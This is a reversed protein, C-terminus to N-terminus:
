NPFWYAFWSPMWRLYDQVFERSISTGTWLPKFMFFLVITIVALAIAVITGIKINKRTLHRVIYVTFLIIFPVPLLNGIVCIPLAKIWEIGWTYALIIAGRLEVIPIMSMLFIALERNLESFYSVIIETM